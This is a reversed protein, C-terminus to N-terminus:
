SPTQKYRPLHDKAIRRDIPHPSRGLEALHIRKLNGGADSVLQEDHLGISPLELWGALDDARAEDLEVMLEHQNWGGVRILDDPSVLLPTPSGTDDTHKRYAAYVRNAYRLLPARGHQNAEFHVRVLDGAPTGVVGSEQPIRDDKAATRASLVYVSTRVWLTQKNKM